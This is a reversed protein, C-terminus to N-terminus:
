TYRTEVPYRIKCFSILVRRCRKCIRQNREASFETIDIPLNSLLFRFIPRNSRRVIEKTPYNITVTCDDHLTALESSSIADM